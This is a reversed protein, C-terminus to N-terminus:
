PQPEQQKVHRWSKGCRINSIMGHSVPYDAAIEKNSEGRTIRRRIQRVDDATLRANGNAEGHRQVPPHLGRAHADLQNLSHDGLYLHRPNCCPPNDCHHCVHLPGPDKGTTFEYALRSAVYHRHRPRPGRISGYGQKSRAGKWPWCDDRSSIQVRRWFNLPSPKM